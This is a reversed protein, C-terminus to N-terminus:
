SSGLLRRFAVDFMVNFFNSIDLIYECSDWKEHVKSYAGELTKAEITVIKTLTEIITIEYEHM